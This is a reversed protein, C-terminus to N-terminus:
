TCNVFSRAMHLLSLAYRFSRWVQEPDGHTNIDLTLPGSLFCDM